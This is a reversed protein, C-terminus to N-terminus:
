LALDDERSRAEANTVPQKPLAFGFTSGEGFVSRVWVRGGHLEALQKVLSLGLGTGEYNRTLSSDVQSFARFLKAHDEPAIGIGTDTVEFRVEDAADEVHLVISGGKPTFKVANSLYNYLMQKLKRPDAVLTAPTDPLETRLSLDHKQAREQVVGLSGRAIDTASLTEPELELRGAEIKSLDLVDNILSLLHQGSTLIDGLYARQKDNLPGFFGEILVESFGLISTLPTRLEHSMTALFESKRRSAEAIAREAEKRDTVDRIISFVERDNIAVMRGERYRREGGVEVPYEYTNVEDNQFALDIQRRVERAVDAPLVDDIHKGVMLTIDRLPVFDKPPVIDVYYGDRDHCVIADPIAELLARNRAESERLALEARKRDTIDRVISITEDDNVKVFRVERYREEGLVTLPHEYIQTEGTALVRELRKRIDAAIPPPLTEEPTKGLLSTTSRHPLFNQPPVIETYRGERDSRIIGDPIANLLSWMRQESNRLARATAAQESVDFSYVLELTQEAFSLRKRGIVIDYIKDDLEYKDQTVMHDEDSQWFAVDAQYYEEARDGFVDTYSLESVVRDGAGFSYRAPANMLVFRHDRDKLFVPFPLGDLVAQTLDRQAKLAAETQKRESIDKLAGQVYRVVGGQRVAEGVARVDRHRGRATTMELELDYPGGETNARVFATELRDRSEPTFFSLATDPDPADDHPWEYIDFIADTWTTAGTTPDYRWSGTHTLRQTVNLLVEQERLRNLTAELRDRTRGAIVVLAAVVLLAVAPGLPATTFPSPELGVVGPAYVRVVVDVVLVGLAVAGGLTGLLVAVLVVAGPLIVFLALDFVAEFLLALATAAVMSGLAFAARRPTRSTLITLSGTRVTRGNPTDTAKEIPKDM